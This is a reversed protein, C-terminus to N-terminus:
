LSRYVDYIDRSYKSIVEIGRLSELGINDSFKLKYAVLEQKNFTRNKKKFYKRDGLIPHGMSALTARIQHTRGTLLKIELLTYNGNTELSKIHTISKKGENKNAVHVVNKDDKVLYNVIEKNATFKGEVIALYYKEIKETEIDQNLQVLSKRNKAGIILGKTNRDLRNVIAPTFSHELRPIYEKSDILRALLFDVVTKGYDQSSAPHSLLNDPKDIIMVDENEFAIDLNLNNKEIKKSNEKAWGDIIEDYIYIDVLDGEELKHSAEVKKGNVKIRKKRIFKQILSKPAGALYKELFKILSQQADNKEILIKKM